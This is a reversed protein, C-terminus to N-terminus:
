RGAAANVPYDAKALAVVPAAPQPTEYQKYEPIQDLRVFNYGEAVLIPLVARVLDGSHTHICHMLVVGGNDRRIERLYGKACKEADWGRHWCDWDAASMIYGGRIEISGGEDWYIPGVYNKLVPDANLIAAHATRWAGYPARFYFITGAPSLPAIDDHVIRIQNILAQPDDDYHGGLLPHTASHNGLLHGEAAVRALVAPYAHAMVGVIFFTAKINYQKLADLVSPTNFNPGDDFTLALTHTGRLGSRFINDKQFWALQVGKGSPGAAAPCAYAAAIAAAAIALKRLVTGVGLSLKGLLTLNRSLRPL